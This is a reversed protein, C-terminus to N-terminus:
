KSTLNNIVDSTTDYQKALSFLSAIGPFGVAIRFMNGVDNSTM